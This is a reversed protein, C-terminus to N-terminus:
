KKRQWNKITIQRARAITLKEAPPDETITSGAGITANKGIKLPAVLSTNSGIFTGSEITTHHKTVGDYNCTITGAGINVHEGVTTDGLYSLHNAKSNKGLKTNKIEVFNGIRSQAQLHTGPRIRAFPGITCNDEIIADEIVCNAKISVNNGIVVNKLFSNPGICTNAGITVQGALIVNIDIVSDQAFTLDGRLDFRTPDIITLGQLMLNTALNNQYQRELKALQLKDNVGIVETAPIVLSNIPIKDAVLLAIIDTLYYENQTNNKNLRPLYNRLIKSTTTLIGSNIENIELQAASAEKHEIIAKITGTPDRVIRGFGSPDFFEATLLNIGDSPMNKILQQLTTPTVLPVDGYLILIQSAHDVFPLAQMVAHGTGLQETQITWNIDYQQFHERILTNDAGCVVHIKQPHLSQATQIVHELLPKSGLKHLVKPLNSQMRTGKGAALIVIHLSM